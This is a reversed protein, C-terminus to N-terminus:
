KIYKDILKDDLGSSIALEKLEKKSLKNSLLELDSIKANPYIECLLEVSKSSTKKKKYGIWEHFYIKQSEHACMCLSNWLLKPHKQLTYWNKNFFENVTLVFHEQTERSSSKVSSIYRNLIFLESKLAKQQEDDLEDWLSKYNSDVAALIEKLPIKEAM